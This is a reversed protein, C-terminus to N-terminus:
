KQLTLYLEDKKKHYRYELEFKMSNILLSIQKQRDQPLHSYTENGMDFDNQRQDQINYQFEQRHDSLFQQQSEENTLPEYTYRQPSPLHTDMQHNTNRITNSNNTHSKNKPDNTMNMDMDMDIDEEMDIDELLEQVFLQQQDDLEDLKEDEEDRDIDIPDAYEEDQRLPHHKLQTVPQNYAKLSTVHAVPIYYGNTEDKLAYNLGENWVQIIKCPGIWSPELAKKTKSRKSNVIKYWVFQGEKFKHQKRNKDRQAKRLKDYNEQWELARGISIEKLTKISKIFEENNTMVLESNLEIDMPLKPQYGLVLQAPSENTARTPTSNYIYCIHPLFLDWDSGKLTFDLKYDIAILALREKLYRHFREIMGNTSPKYPTTRKHKVDLIKLLYQFCKGTFQSGNDSLLSEPAGFISLWRMFYMIVTSAKINPMPIAMVFRSFRDMVTLIYKNGSSSIRLPGVIDINIMQNHREASFLKTLGIQDTPIPRRKGNEDLYYGPSPKKANCTLCMRIVDNIDKRMGYWYYKRRMIYYIRSMGQHHTQRHYHYILSYRLSAPVVIRYKNNNSIFRKRKKGQVKKGRLKRQHRKRNLIDRKKKRLQALKQKEKPIDDSFVLINNICQFQKYEYQRKIAKPLDDILDIRHKNEEGKQLRLIRCIPDKKQKKILLDTSIVIEFTKPDIPPHHHHDKSENSNSNTPNLQQNPHNSQNQQHTNDERQPQNQQHPLDIDMDDQSPLQLQDNSGHISPQMYEDGYIDEIPENDDKPDDIFIEKNYTWNLKENIQEEHYYQRKPKYTPRQEDDFKEQLHRYPNIGKIDICQTCFDRGGKHIRNRCRYTEDTPPIHDNCADCIAGEKGHYVECLEKIFIRGCTCKTQIQIPGYKETREIINPKNQIHSPNSPSIQPQIPSPPNPQIPPQSQYLPKPKSKDTTTVTFVKDQQGSLYQQDEIQLLRDIFANLRNEYPTPNSIHPCTILYTSLPQIQKIRHYTNISRYRQTGFKNIIINMISEDELLLQNFKENTGDDVYRSLYDALLNDEGPIHEAIFDYEQLCIAWRSLRHNGKIDKVKNFLNKLNIHDTYLTFRNPLLYKRWKDIFHVCAYIEQESVHWRRQTSNLQKSAFEIPRLRGSDDQQMLVGGIAHNSADCKVIFPKNYDPHVLINKSTAVKRKINAFAINAERTWILQQKPDKNRLANIPATDEAKHDIWRELWQVVGLFAQLEKTNTPKVFNLVKDVSKRTPRIGERTITIGLFELQNQFFKCKHQRIKMGAKELVRLIIEVHQLHEEFTNSAIIIDDIYVQCFEYDKFLEKMIRSMHAPANKLGQPMRKWQWLADETIFATKHRHAPLVPVTWYASTVDMSTFWQKGQFVSIMDNMNPIPFKDAYTVMNLLRYDITMRFEGPTKKARVVVPSAYNSYSKEIVGQAYLEKCLRRIFLRKENSTRYAKKAFPKDSWTNIQFYDEAHGKLLGVKSQKTTMVRQRFSELLNRVQYLKEEDHVADLAFEKAYKKIHYKDFEMEMEDDEDHSIHYIEINDWYRDEEERDQQQRRHIFPKSDMAWNTSENYFKQRKTLALAKLVKRGIVFGIDGTTEPSPLIYFKIKLLYGNQVSTVKLHQSLIIEGNATTAPRPKKDYEFDIHYTPNNTFQTATNLGVVNLSAGSDIMSDIVGIENTEIDVRVEPAHIQATDISEM